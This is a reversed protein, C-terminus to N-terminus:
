DIIINAELLEQEAELKRAAIEDETLFEMGIMKLANNITKKTNSEYREKMQYEGDKIIKMLFSEKDEMSDSKFTFLEKLSVDRYPIISKIFNM